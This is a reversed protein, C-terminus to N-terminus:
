NYAILKSEIFDKVPSGIEEWSKQGFDFGIAYVCVPGVCVKVPELIRHPYMLFATRVGLEVAYAAIQQIDSSAPQNDTKYKTDFITVPAGTVRRCLALDIKFTVRHTAQLPVVWQHRVEWRSAFSKKMWRAVSNEFITPMHLVFPTFLEPGQRITPSCAKKLLHCLRHIPEYDAHHGGYRMRDHDMADTPRIGVHPLFCQKLRLLRQEIRASEWARKSLVHLTEGILQNAIHNIGGEDYRCRIVLPDLDGGFVIRGRLPNARDERETYKWLLGKRIRKEVLEIFTHVLHESLSEISNVRGQGKQWRVSREVGSLIQWVSHFSVKPVVRLMGGNGLPFLGVYGKSRLSLIKRSNHYVINISFYDPYHAQLWDALCEGEENAALEQASEEVITLDMNFRDSGFLSDIPSM